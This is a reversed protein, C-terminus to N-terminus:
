KDSKKLYTYTTMRRENDKLKIPYGHWQNPESIMIYGCNYKYPFDYRLKANRYDHQFDEYFKTGFDENDKTLYIQLSVEIAPNDEHIGMYFGEKDIWINVVPNDVKLNIASSIEELKTITYKRLDNNIVTRRISIRTGMSKGVDVEVVNESDALFKDIDIKELLDESYFDEVYFLNNKSDIPTIKM